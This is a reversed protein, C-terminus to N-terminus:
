RKRYEQVMEGAISLAIEEVSVAGLSLGIPTHILSIKENEIKQDLLFEKLKKQKRSSGMVGLYRPSMKKLIQSVVIFDSKHGRTMVCLYDRDTFLPKSLIDEFNVKVLNALEGFLEPKLFESRDELVTHQWELLDLYKSLSQAVHGGGFIIVNPKKTLHQVFIRESNIEIIESRTINADLLDKDLWYKVEEQQCFLNSGEKLDFISLKHCVNKYEEIIQKAEQDNSDDVPMKIFVNEQLLEADKTNSEKIKLDRQPNIPTFLISNSGGCVMGLKAAASHNMLVEATAAYNFCRLKKALEISYYEILGGGITGMIENKPNMYLTAGATQPTSGHKATLIIQYDAEFDILEQQLDMLMNM